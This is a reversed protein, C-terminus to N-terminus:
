GERRVAAEAVEAEKDPREVYEPAREWWEAIWEHRQHAYEAQKEQTTM